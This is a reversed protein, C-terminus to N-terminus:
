KTKMLVAARGSELSLAKGGRAFLEEQGLVERYVTGTPIEFAVAGGSESPNAVILAHEYYRVYLGSPLKTPAHSTPAGVKAADEPWWSFNAGGYGYCQTCVLTTGSSNTNSLLFSALVWAHVDVPMSTNLKSVNKDCSFGACHFQQQGYENIAYYSKGIKQQMLAFAVKHEWSKGLRKSTASYFGAEDLVGDTSHSVHLLDPSNLAATPSYNPIMKMGVKHSAETIRDTWQLVDRAYAVRGSQSISENTGNYQQVWQGSADYHGCAKIANNLNYNDWAIGDFGNAKAPLVAKQLQFDVVEPNSIDLPLPPDCPNPPFCKYALTKRDCRYMLWTPHTKRWWTLNGDTCGTYHTCTPDHAFAVYRTLVVNPAAQRWTRTHTASGGWVFDPAAGSAAAHRVDADTMDEDGILVTHVGSASNVWPRPSERARASSRNLAEDTKWRSATSWGNTKVAPFLFNEFETLNGGMKWCERGSPGPGNVWGACTPVNISHVTHNCAAVFQAFFQRKDSTALPWARRQTKVFSFYDQWRLLVIYNIALSSRLVRVRHEEDDVALAKAASAMAAAAAVVTENSFLPSSPSYDKTTHHGHYMRPALAKAAKSMITMYKLVFPAASPGYFGWLFEHVLMDTPLSPDLTKRGMLYARLETMDAGGASAAQGFYGSVGEKALHAIDEAVAAYYPYPALPFGINGMYAWVWVGSKAALKVYARIHDLTQNNAPEMLGASNDEYSM